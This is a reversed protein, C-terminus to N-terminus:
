AGRIRCPPGSSRDIDAGIRGPPGARRPQQARGKSPPKRSDAPFRVFVAAESREAVLAEIDKVMQDRRELVARIQGDRLWKGLAAKLTAEDLAM